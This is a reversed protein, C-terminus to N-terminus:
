YESLMLEVINVATCRYCCHSQDTPKRVLFGSTAHEFGATDIMFKESKRSFKLSYRHKFKVQGNGQLRMSSYYMCPYSWDLVRLWLHRSSAKKPVMGIGCCNKYDFKALFDHDPRYSYRGLFADNTEM